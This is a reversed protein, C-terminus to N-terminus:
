VTELHSGPPQLVQASIRPSDAAPSSPTLLSHNRSIQIRNDGQESSAPNKTHFVPSVLDFPNLGANSCSTVYLSYPVAERLSVTHKNTIGLEARRFALLCCGTQFFHADRVGLNQEPSVPPEALSPQSSIQAPVPVVHAQPAEDCCVPRRSALRFPSRHGFTPHGSSQCLFRSCLVSVRCM